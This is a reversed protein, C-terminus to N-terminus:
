GISVPFSEPGEPARKSLVVRLVGDRQQAEVSERRATGPLRFRRAFRGYSREVRHFRVGPREREMPREGEIVLDDGDVRVRIREPDLGPLEVSVEFADETERVDAVPVWPGIGGDAEIETRALATEFLSNMRKQVASLEELPDWDSPRSM